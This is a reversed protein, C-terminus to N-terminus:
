VNGHTGQFGDGLRFLMLRMGRFLVQIRFICFHVQPSFRYTDLRLAWLSIKGYQCSSSLFVICIEGFRM